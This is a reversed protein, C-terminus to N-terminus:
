GDTEMIQQNLETYGVCAFLRQQYLDIIKIWDTDCGM